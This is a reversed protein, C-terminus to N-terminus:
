PQEFFSSAYQYITIDICNTTNRDNSNPQMNGFFFCVFFCFVFLCVILFFFFANWYSAYQSSCHGGSYTVVSPIQGVGRGGSASGPPRGFRGNSASVLGGQICVGQIYVGRERSASGWGGPHLGGSGTFLIVCAESFMVKGQLRYFLISSSKVRFCFRKKNYSSEAKVHLFRQPDHLHFRKWKRTQGVYVSNVIYSNWYIPRLGQFLCNNMVMAREKVVKLKQQKKM